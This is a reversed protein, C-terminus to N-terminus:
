KKIVRYFRHRSTTAQPDIQTLDTSGVAQTELPTWLKLDTSYEITHEQAAEDKIMLEFVNRTVNYNILIMPPLSVTLLLTQSGMGGANSANITITSSGVTTPTGSILGTATNVTLGAPLGTANLSTPTNNATITYSFSQGVTTTATAASTIVPVLPNVTLLLTRSGIGGANSANITISSSGVTTPTGSIVGTDPNISLGAPLGTAAFSTAANDATITYSFPQDVTATATAASTIVPTLTPIFTATPRGAFTSGWGTKGQIYYVTANIAGNFVGIGRTPANGLFYVGTLGDCSEFAFDGISIVSSPLTVSTLGTCESFAYIGISTISSPLTVSTLGSCYAFAGYGISTISSPITVSTLGSCGDFASEGISTVGNLITVNTLFDSGDFAYDGISTVSGPITISTLGSDSFAYYGISTVSSPITLTQLANCYEFASDGISIVSSPITISTLGGCAFFASDGISTVSNPITYVGTKGAPFAVLSTQKRNFLVNDSSSYAPNALDVTVSVLRSCDALASEGIFLVSSPITVRTLGTCGYFTGEGISTVSNPIMITTLGSDSFASEGISTVSSPITVNTLGRCADFAWEGISTVPLGNIASPIVLTGTAKPNSGTITIATGDSTFLLEAKSTATFTLLVALACAKFNKLLRKVTPSSNTQRHTNM